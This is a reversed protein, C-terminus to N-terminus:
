AIFKTACYGKEQRLLKILVSFVITQLFYWKNNKADKKVNITDVFTVGLRAVATHLAM